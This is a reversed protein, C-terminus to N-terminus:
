LHKGVRKVLVKGYAYWRGDSIMEASRGASSLEGRGSSGRVAEGSETPGTREV